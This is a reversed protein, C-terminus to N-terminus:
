TATFPVASVVVAFTVSSAYTLPLTQCSFALLRHHLLVLGVAAQPGVIPVAVLGSGAVMLTVALLVVTLWLWTEAATVEPVWMRNMVPEFSTTFRTPPVVVTFSVPLLLM